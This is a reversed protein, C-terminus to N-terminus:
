ATPFADLINRRITFEDVKQGATSPNDILRQLRAKEKKAYDPDSSIKQIAKVYLQAEHYDDDDTSVGNAYTEAEKLVEKADGDKLKAVIEDLEEIRGAEAALSGTPTRHTKARENLFSVFTAIDRGQSYAEGEKKDKPFFKITPFGSVGYKQGLDKHKDADLNAVVVHPENKFAAAVKEYDPALKKCHGCWPAYFEVLVDKTSDLVISDFNDPDLVVVSTQTSKKKGKTGVHENIWDVIGDATRPGDYAIENGTSWGKPFFKLTPFGSVGFRSGLDRHKDADVKALVVKDNSSLADAAKDYEPELHKCHGCWPAYFEVLIDKSGDVYSDFNEPTLVVVNSALTVAALIAVLIFVISKM